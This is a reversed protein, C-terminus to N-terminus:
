NLKSIDWIQLRSFLNATIQQLPLRIVRLTWDPMTEQGHWLPASDVLQSLENVMLLLSAPEEWPRSWCKHRPVRMTNAICSERLETQFNVM